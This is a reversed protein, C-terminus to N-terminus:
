SNKWVIEAFGATAAARASSESRAVATIKVVTGMQMQARKVVVPESQTSFGACGALLAVLGM